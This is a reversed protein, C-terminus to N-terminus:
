VLIGEKDLILLLIIYIYICIVLLAMRLHRSLHEVLCPFCVKYGRVDSETLDVM